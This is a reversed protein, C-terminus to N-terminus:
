VSLVEICANIREISVCIILFEFYMSYLVSVCVCSFFGRECPNAILFVMQNTEPFREPFWYNDSCCLATMNLGLLIDTYIDCYLFVMVDTKCNM